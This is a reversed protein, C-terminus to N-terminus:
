DPVTDSHSKLVPECVAFSVVFCGFGPLVLASAIQQPEHVSALCGVRQSSMWPRTANVPWFRRTNTIFTWTISSLQDLHWNKTFSIWYKWKKISIFHNVSFQSEDHATIDHNTFIFFPPIKSGREEQACSRQDRSTCNVLRKKKARWALAMMTTDPASASFCLLIVGEADWLWWWKMAPPMAPTASAKATCGRSM